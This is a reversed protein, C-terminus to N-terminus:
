CLVLHQSGNACDSSSLRRFQFITLNTSVSLNNVTRQIPSWNLLTFWVRSIMCFRTFPLDTDASSVLCQHWQLTLFALTPKDKTTLSLLWPVRCRVEWVTIHTDIVQTKNSHSVRALLHPTQMWLGEIHHQQQQDPSWVKLLLPKPPTPTFPQSIRPNRCASPFGATSSMPPNGSASWASSWSSSGWIPRPLQQRAVRLGRLVASDWM